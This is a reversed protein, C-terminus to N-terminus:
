STYISIAKRTWRVGKSPVSTNSVRYVGPQFGPSNINFGELTKTIIGGEFSSGLVDTM